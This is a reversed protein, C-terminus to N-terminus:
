NEPLTRKKEEKKKREKKKKKKIIIELDLKRSLISHHAQKEFDLLSKYTENELM